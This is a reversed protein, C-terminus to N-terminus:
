NHPINNCAVTCRSTVNSEDSVQGCDYSPGFTQKPHEGFVAVKEWIGATFFVDNKTFM